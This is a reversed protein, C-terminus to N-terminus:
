RRIAENARQPGDQYQQKSMAIALRQFARQGPMEIVRYTLAAVAVVAALYVLTLADMAFPGGAVLRPRPAGEVVGYLRLGNAELLKAGQSIIWLVPMHLMYISYSWRGLAQVSPHMLLHSVVGAEHAFVWILLGFMLPAAFALHTTGLGAIFIAVAFLIMGELTSAFPLRARGRMQWLQQLLVGIFFGYICRFYGFDFTTDMLTNAFAMVVIAGAAALAAAMWSLRKPWWLTVAAFVLYTYFETSISWSAGNWTVRDHIGLSHILLVNTWIARVVAPTAESFAPEGISLGALREVAVKALQAAILLGLTFIHLPWLRGVRRMVFLSADNLSRM